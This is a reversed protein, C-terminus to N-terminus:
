QDYNDKIINLIGIYLNDVASIADLIESKLNFGHIWTNISYLDINKIFLELKELDISKDFKLYANFLDETTRIRHVGPAYM